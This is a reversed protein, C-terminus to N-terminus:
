YKFRYVEVYGGELNVTFSKARGKVIVRVLVQAPGPTRDTFMDIYVVYEGHEPKEFFINEVPHEVFSNVQMDVDLEGGAGYPNGYFVVEGSPTHVHLDVDDKTDWLMSVTIDGKGAGANKLVEELIGGSIEDGLVDMGAANTILVVAMAAAAFQLLLNKKRKLQKWFARFKSEEGESSPVDAEEFENHHLPIEPVPEPQRFGGRFESTEPFEATGTDYEPVRNGSTEFFETTQM